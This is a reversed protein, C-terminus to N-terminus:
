LVFIVYSNKLKYSTRTHRDLFPFSSWLSSLMINFNTSIPVNQAKWRKKEKEKIARWKKKRKYLLTMWFKWAEVRQTDDQYYKGKRMGNELYKLMSLLKLYNLHILQSENHDRLTLTSILKAGLTPIIPNFFWIPPDLHICFVNWEKKMLSLPSM